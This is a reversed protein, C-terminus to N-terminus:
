RARQTYRLTVRRIRKGVRPRGSTLITRTLPSRKPWGTSNVGTSTKRLRSGHHEDDPQRGPLRLDPRVGTTWCRECGSCLSSARGLRLSCAIPRPAAQYRLVRRPPAPRPETPGPVASRCSDCLRVVYSMSNGNCCRFLSLTAMASLFTIATTPAVPACPPPMARAMRASGLPGKAHRAM